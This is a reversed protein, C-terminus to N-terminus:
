HQQLVTLSQFTPEDGVGCQLHLKDDQSGPLIPPLMNFVQDLLVNKFTCGNDEAVDPYREQSDNNLSKNTAWARTLSNHQM